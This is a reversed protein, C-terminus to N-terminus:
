EKPKWARVYDVIMYSPNPTNNIPWGSGMALDVLLYMRQKHEPPTPTRWYEVRNFYFRTWEADVRVGYTNFRDYLSGVPVPNLKKLNVNKKPDKRNWVHVASSFRQPLHGHHEVVDIESTHTTRDLGILWFAPWLGEGAPFKARMEFYGYQQAFGNGERDVSALLGSRWKGDDGKRAEIRLNGDETVFPFGPEPNAFKADGFDGNWPTHAIWRTGPGWASVSLDNFSEDFTIQFNNLDLPEQTDASVVAHDGLVISGIMAAAALVHLRRRGRAPFPAGLNSSMM